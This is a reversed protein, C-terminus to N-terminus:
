PTKPNASELRREKRDLLKILQDVYELFKKRDQEVSIRQCLTMMEKKEDPTV